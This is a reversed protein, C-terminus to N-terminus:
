LRPFDRLFALGQETLHVGQKTKGITIYGESELMKLRTKIKSETLYLAKLRELSSLSYRGCPINKQNFDGIAYLLAACDNPLPACPVASREDSDATQAPVRATKSESSFLDAKEEFFQEVMDFFSDTNSYPFEDSQLMSIYQMTAKLERINGPWDYKMFLDHLRGSLVDCHLSSFAGSRLIDALDEKRDRLPPIRLSLVHIRYFLDERFAGEKVMKPLNRNTACIIRVDIPISGSGGIRIIEREELVRLLKAQISLSADGIEDLFITGCHALEFLGPKGGKSAGTFAGEEYGFLESEALSEPLAAFNIGVFPGQARSSANHISQAFLEKGTGSEGLLLVTFNTKSFQRAVSISKQISLSTGLIDDFTYKAIFSKSHLRVRAKTESKQLSKLPIFSLFCCAKEDSVAAFTATILITQKNITLIHDHVNQKQLILSILDPYSRFFTNYQVGVPYTEDPPLNFFNRASPNMTIIIDDQDITVIANQSLNCVQEFNNKLLATESLTAVIQYCINIIYKVYSTHFSDAYQISLQFVNIIKVITSISLTRHGIDIYERKGPPCYNRFGAYIVTDFGPPDVPHSPSYPFLDIHDIGINQLSEITQKVVLRPYNVVLAKTGKPLNLVKELNKVSIFRETSIIISEPFLVPAIKDTVKTALVAKPIYPFDAAGDASLPSIQIVDQFIDRLSETLFTKDEETETLVVLLNDQYKKAATM